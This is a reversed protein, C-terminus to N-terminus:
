QEENPIQYDLHGVYISDYKLLRQRLDEIEKRMQKNDRQLQEDYHRQVMCFAFLGIITLVLITCLMETKTM